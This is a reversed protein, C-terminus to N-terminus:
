KAGYGPGEAHVHTPTHTVVGHHIEGRWAGSASHAAEIMEKFRELNHKARRRDSHFMADAHDLVGHDDHRLELKVRTFGDGVEEFEVCARNDPAGQSRWEILRDPVQEVIEARWEEKAPGIETVWRLHADDVQEVEKVDSMFRPYEEFQTWQNYATRVPVAVDISESVIGM